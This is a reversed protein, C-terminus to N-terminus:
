VTGVNYGELYFIIHKVGIPIPRLGNWDSVRRPITQWFSPEVESLCSVDGASRHGYSHGYTQM